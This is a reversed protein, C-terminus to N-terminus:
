RWRAPQTPLWSARTTATIATTTARTATGSRATIRASCFEGHRPRRRVRDLQTTVKDFDAGNPAKESRQFTGIM